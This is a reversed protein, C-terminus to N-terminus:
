TLTIKNHGSFPNWPLGWTFVKVTQNEWNNVLFVSNVHVRILQFDTVSKGVIFDEKGKAASERSLSEVVEGM